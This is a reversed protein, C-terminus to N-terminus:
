RNKSCYHCSITAYKINLYLLDKTKAYSKKFAEIWKRLNGATGYADLTALLKTHCLTVFAKAYDIYVENVSCKDRVALTWDNLTALLNTAKSKGSLFGQQQRTIIGHTRLYHLM